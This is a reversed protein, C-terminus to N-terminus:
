PRSIVLKVEILALLLGLGLDALRATSFAVELRLDRRQGPGGETEVANLCPLLCLSVQTLRIMKCPLLTESQVLGKSGVYVCQRSAM